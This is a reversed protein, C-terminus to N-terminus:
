LKKVNNKNTKAKKTNKKPGGRDEGAAEVFSCGFLSPLLMCGFFSCVFLLHWSLSTVNVGKAHGGRDGKRKAAPSRAKMSKAEGKQKQLVFPGVAM